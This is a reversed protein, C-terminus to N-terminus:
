RRQRPTVPPSGAASMVTPLPLPLSPACRCPTMRSTTCYLASAFASTRPRARTCRSRSSRRSATAAFRARDASRDVALQSARSRTARPRRSHAARPAPCRPRRVPPGQPRLRGLGPRLRHHGRRDAGSRRVLRHHRSPHAGHRGRDPHEAEERRDGPNREQVRLSAVPQLQHEARRPPLANPNLQLPAALQPAPYRAFPTQQPARPPTPTLRHAACRRIRSTM